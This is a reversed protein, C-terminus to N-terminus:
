GCKGWWYALKTPVYEISFIPISGPCDSIGRCDVGGGEPFSDSKSVRAGQRWLLSLPNWWRAILGVIQLKRWILTGLFWGFNSWKIGMHQIRMKQVGRNRWRQIDRAAIPWVGRTPWHMLRTRGVLTNPSRCKADLSRNFGSAGDLGLCRSNLKVSVIWMEHNFLTWHINLFKNSKKRFLSKYNLKLILTQINKWWIIYREM